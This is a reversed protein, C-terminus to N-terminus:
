RQGKALAKALETSDSARDQALQRLTREAYADPVTGRDRAAHVMAAAADASAIKKRIEDPGQACAALLPACVLCAVLARRARPRVASRGDIRSGAPPHM